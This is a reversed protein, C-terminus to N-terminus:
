IVYLRRDIRRRLSMEVLFVNYTLTGKHVEQHLLYILRLSPGTPRWTAAGRGPTDLIYHTLCHNEHLICVHAVVEARLSYGARRVSSGTGVARTFLRM